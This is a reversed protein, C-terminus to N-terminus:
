FSFLKCKSINLLAKKEKTDLAKVKIKISAYNVCLMVNTEATCCLSKVNTYTAFHHGCYIYDVDM